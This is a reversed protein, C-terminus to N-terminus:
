AAIRKEVKSTLNNRAFSMLVMHPVTLAALAIFTYRVATENLANMLDPRDSVALWLAAGITAIVILSLGYVV